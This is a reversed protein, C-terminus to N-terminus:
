VGQMLDKARSGHGIEPCTLYASHGYRIPEQAWIAGAFDVSILGRRCGQRAPQRISFGTLVPGDAITGAVLKFLGHVGFGAGNSGDARM